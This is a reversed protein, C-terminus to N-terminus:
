KKLIENEMRDIIRCKDDLSISSNGNFHEWFQTELTETDGLYIGIKQGAGLLYYENKRGDSDLYISILDHESELFRCRKDEDELIEHDIFDMDKRETTLETFRADVANLLTNRRSLCTENAKDISSLLADALVHRGSFCNDCFCKGDSRLRAKGKIDAENLGSAENNNNPNRPDYGCLNEKIEQEKM